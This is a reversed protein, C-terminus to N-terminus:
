GWTMTILDDLDVTIVWSVILFKKLSVWIINDDILISGSLMLFLTMMRNALMLCLCFRFLMTM